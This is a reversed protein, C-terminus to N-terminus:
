NSPRRPPPVIHRPPLGDPRLADEPTLEPEPPPPPPALFDAGIAMGIQSQLRHGPRGVEDAARDADFTSPDIINPTIAQLESLATGTKRKGDANLAGANGLLSAQCQALERNAETLCPDDGEVDAFTYERSRDTTTIQTVQSSASSLLEGQKDIQDAQIRDYSAGQPAKAFTESLVQGDTASACGVALLLASIAILSFPKSTM